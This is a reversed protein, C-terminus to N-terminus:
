VVVEHAKIKESFAGNYSLETEVIVVNKIINENGSKLNTEVGVVDGVEFALNAFPEFEMSYIDDAFYRKIRESREVISASGFGWVNLPNNEVFPEGYKNLSVSGDFSDTKIPVVTKSGDEGSIQQTTNVSYFYNHIDNTVNDLSDVITGMGKFRWYALNVGNYKSIEVDVRYKKEMEASMEYRKFQYASVVNNRTLTPWKKLTNKTFPTLDTNYMANPVIKILGGDFVYNFNYAAALNLLANKASNNIEFPRTLDVNVTNENSNIWSVTNTIAKAIYPSKTYGAREDLMINSIVNKLPINMQGNIYENFGFVKNQTGMMASLLDVARWTIINNQLEPKAIMYLHPMEILETHVAKSLEGWTAGELEGWTKDEYDGWTMNSSNLTQIFEVIVLGSEAVNSYKVLTNKEDIDGFYFETWVAEIYPLDRSLPDAGQKYTFNKLNKAAWTITNSAGNKDTYYLSIRPECKPIVNGSVVKLYDDSVNRLFIM